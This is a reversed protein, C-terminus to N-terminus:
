ISSTLAKDAVAITRNANVIHAKKQTLQLHKLTLQKDKTQHQEIKSHIFIAWKALDLVNVDWPHWNILMPGSYISFLVDM